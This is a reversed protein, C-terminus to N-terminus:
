YQLGAAKILNEVRVKGSGKEEADYWKEIDELYTVDEDDDGESLKKLMEVEEQFLSNDKDKWSPVKVNLRKKEEPFLELFDEPSLMENLLQNDYFNLKNELQSGYKAIQADRQEPTRPDSITSGSKMLTKLATAMSEM